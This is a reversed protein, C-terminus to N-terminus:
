MENRAVILFDYLSLRFVDKEKIQKLAAMYFNKYREVDSLDPSIAKFYSHLSEISSFQVFGHNEFKEIIRFGISELTSCCSQVNWEGNMRFPMYMDVLEKYNGTGNQHLIFYGGPKLVRKIENKEYNCLQNMVVDIKDDKFPMQQAQTLTTVKIPTESLNDKVIEIDGYPEVDYTVAPLEKFTSAFKGQDVSLFSLHDESKLYRKLVQSEDFEKESEYYDLSTEQLDKLKLVEELLMKAENIERKCRMQGYKLTLFQVIADAIIGLALFIIFFIIWNTSFIPDDSSILYCIFCIFAMYGTRTYNFKKDLSLYWMMNSVKRVKNYNIEFFIIQLILLMLIFNVLLIFLEQM